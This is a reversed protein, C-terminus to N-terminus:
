TPEGWPDVPTQVAGLEEDGGGLALVATPDGFPIDIVFVDTGLRTAARAETRLSRGDALRVVVARATRAVPGALYRTGGLRAAFYSVANREPVEFGCGTRKDGGKALELCMGATSDQATLTWGDDSAVVFAKGTRPPFTGPAPARERCATLTLVM